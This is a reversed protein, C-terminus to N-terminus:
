GGGGSKHQGPTKGTSYEARLKETGRGIEDDFYAANRHMAADQHLM